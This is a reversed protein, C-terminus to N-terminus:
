ITASSNSAASGAVRERQLRTNPRFRGNDYVFKKNYENVTKEAEDFPLVVLLRKAEIFELQHVQRMHGYAYSKRAARYQCKGCKFPKCPFIKSSHNKEYAALTRMAEDEDLVEYHQLHSLAVKRHAMQFHVSVYRPLNSRYFCSVCKFKKSGSSATRRRQSQAQLQLQISHPQQSVAVCESQNCKETSSMANSDARNLNEIEAETSSVINLVTDRETQNNDEKHGDDLCIISDSTKVLERNSAQKLQSIPLKTVV